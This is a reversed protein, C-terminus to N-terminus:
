LSRGGFLSPNQWSNIESFLFVGEHLTRRDRGLRVFGILLLFVEAFIVTKFHFFHFVVKLSAFCTLSWEVCNVRHVISMDIVPLKSLDSMMIVTVVNPLELLGGRGGRGVAGLPWRNGSFACPYTSNSRNSSESSIGSVLRVIGSSDSSCTRMGLRGGAGGGFGGLGFFHLTGPLSSIWKNM